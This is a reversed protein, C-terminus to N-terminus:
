DNGQVISIADIKKLMRAIPIINFICIFIPIAATEIFSKSNFIVIPLGKKDFLNLKLIFGTGIALILGIIYGVSQLLFIEKFVRRIILRRSYGVAHLIGFEKRRHYFNVYGLNVIALTMVIVVIVETINFIVKMQSDSATSEEMEDKYTLTKIEKSKINKILFSNSDELRRDKHFVALVKFKENDINSCPIFATLSDGEMIGTVKYQGRLAEEKKLDHGIIDGVKLSKSKAIRYHLIIEDEKQPLKGDKLKLGIREMMYQMDDLNVKFVSLYNDGGIPMNFNTYEVGCQIVKETSDEEEIRNILFADLKKNDKNGYVMSYSKLGHFLTLESIDFTAQVYMSFVYIFFVCLAVCIILPITRKKNNRFYNLPALPRIKM